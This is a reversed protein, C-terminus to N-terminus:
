YVNQCRSLLVDGKAFPHLQRSSNPTTVGMYAYTFAKCNTLTTHSGHIPKETRTKQETKNDTQQQQTRRESASDIKKKDLM